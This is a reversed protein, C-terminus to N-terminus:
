QPGGKDTVLTKTMQSRMSNIQVSIALGSPMKYLGRLYALDGDTIRHPVSGCNPALLNAISPLEQCDAQSAPQSLALMAIYDALTGVEYDLLKAPEAVILVNYFGSNLGDRARSGLSHVVIACPLSLQVPTGAGTQLTDIAPLSEQTPSAVNLMTTGGPGCKGSDVVRTGFWDLTETTYWSQIPYSVTALRATEFSTAAYGLFLSQRKQVNDLLAQPTTTFVVEIDPRCGPDSSVPAGVTAAIDRIRQTVYKAYTDGLGITLPCIGKEWRAMRGLVRTPATRTKIFDQITEPSPKVGLVTITEPPLPVPPKIQQSPAQQALVASGMLALVAIGAM